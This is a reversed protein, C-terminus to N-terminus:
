KLLVMRRAARFDGAELTYVYVGASLRSADFRLRHRGAARVGEDLRAVRRGLVDYVTLTVARAEPLDYTIVTTPNFPNPYNAGLAFREPVAEGAAAEAGALRDLTSAWDTVVPASGGKGATKEFTFADSDDTLPFSGTYGTVTYTGSPAGAPVNQTLTKLLTDGPALTVPVPGLTISVGAGGVNVWVETTQTATTHNVLSVDYDFTGGEPPITLPVTLPTLAVAVDPPTVVEASALVYLGNSVFTDAEYIPDSQDYTVALDREEVGDFHRFALSDGTQFGDVAETISDDGWVTLAQPAAAWVIVGACAGDPMLVAVEDGAAFPYSLGEPFIVTAYNGTNSFCNTFHSQAYTNMGLLGLAVTWLLKKM